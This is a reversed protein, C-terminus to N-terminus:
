PVATGTPTPQLCPGGLLWCNFQENAETKNAAWWARDRRILQEVADPATPLTKTVKPEILEFSKPTVPGLPITRALAAQVEPSTAYALFDLAVDRSPSGRAIVWSDAVLLGDKWSLNIARGDLQGAIVRYHWAAAFDARENALWAIPELGSDWWLDGIKGSIRRLSEVARAGDLPYLNGSEVGDALLAFEFSGEANRPLTRPGEYRGADWWEAWNEPEGSQQVADRRFADVLAYAYAPVDHDTAAIPGFRERDFEGAGITEVLGEGPATEAWVEDVILVDAYPQGSAVSANLQTYDTAMEQVTCGTAKAFPQWIAASLAAQVESGWAAVRLTRGAWRSPDDFSPVVAVPSGSPIILTPTPDPDDSRCGAIAVVAVGAGAGLLTRRTLPGGIRTSLPPQSQSM